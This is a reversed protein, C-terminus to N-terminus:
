TPYNCQCIKPFIAGTVELISAIEKHNLAVSLARSCADLFEGTSLISYRIVKAKLWALKYKASDCSSCSSLDAVAFVNLLDHPTPPDLEENDAM